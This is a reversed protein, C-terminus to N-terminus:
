EVDDDEDDEECECEDSYRGCEGCSHCYCSSCLSPDAHSHGGGECQSFPTECLDCYGEEDEEDGGPRSFTMGCDRCTLHEVGGLVGVLGVPGGCLECDSM